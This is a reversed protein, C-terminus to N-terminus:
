HREITAASLVHNSRQRWRASIRRWAGGCALGVALTAGLLYAGLPWIMYWGDWSYREFPDLPPVEVALMLAAVAASVALSLGALWGVASFRRQRVYRISVGVLALAPITAVAMLFAMACAHVLTLLPGSALPPPRHLYLFSGLASAVATLALL